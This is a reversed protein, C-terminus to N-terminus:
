RGGRKNVEEKRWQGRMTKLAFSVDEREGGGGGEEEERRRAKQAGRLGEDM